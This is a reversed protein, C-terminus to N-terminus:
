QASSCPTIRSHLRAGARSQDGCCAVCRHAGRFSQSIGVGSWTPLHFNFIRRQRNGLCFHYTPSKRLACHAENEAISSACLCIGCQQRAGADMANQYAPVHAGETIREGQRGQQPFEGRDPGAGFDVDDATARDCLLDVTGQRSDARDVLQRGVHRAMEQAGQASQPAHLAHAVVKGDIWVRLRLAASQQHQRGIRGTGESKDSRFLAAHDRM